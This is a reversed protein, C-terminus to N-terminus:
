GSNLPFIFESAQAWSVTINLPPRRRGGGPIRHGPGCRPSPFSTHGQAGVGGDRPPNPLRM